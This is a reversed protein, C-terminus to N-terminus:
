MSLPPVLFKPFLIILEKPCHEVAAKEEPNKTASVTIINSSENPDNQPNNHFASDFKTLGDVLVQLKFYDKCTDM